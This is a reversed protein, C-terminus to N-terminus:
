FSAQTARRSCGSCRGPWCRFDGARGGTSRCCWRYSSGRRWRSRRWCPGTASTATYLHVGCLQYCLGALLAPMRERWVTFALAYAGIGGLLMLTLTHLQAMRYSYGFLGGLLLSLPSYIQTQPNLYFPSGAAVFPCWLPAVGARIADWGYILWPAVASRFDWGIIWNPEGDASRFVLRAFVAIEALALTLIPGLHCVPARRYM